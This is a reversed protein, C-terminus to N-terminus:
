CGLLWVYALESNKAALGKGEDLVVGKALKVATCLLSDVKARVLVGTAVLQPIRSGAAQNGAM